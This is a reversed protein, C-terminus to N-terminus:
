YNTFIILNSIIWLFVKKKKIKIKIELYTKGFFFSHLLVMVMLIKLQFFTKDGTKIKAFM